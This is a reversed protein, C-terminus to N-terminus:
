RLVPAAHLAALRAHAAASAATMEAPVGLDTLYNATDQM